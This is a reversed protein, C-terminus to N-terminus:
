LGSNIKRYHLCIIIIKLLGIKWLMGDDRCYKPSWRLKKEIKRMLNALNSMNKLTKINKQNKKPSQTKKM